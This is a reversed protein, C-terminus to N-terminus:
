TKFNWNITIGSCGSFSIPPPSFPLSATPQTPTHSASVPPQVPSKNASLPQNEKEERGFSVAKPDADVSNKERNLVRSVLAQQELSSRKYARVGDTSRHGTREMILQEDM